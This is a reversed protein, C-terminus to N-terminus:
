DMLQEIREALVGQNITGILVERVIGNHDIFVTTPLNLVGYLSDRICM